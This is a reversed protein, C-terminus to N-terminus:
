GLAPLVARWVRELDTLEMCDTRQGAYEFGLHLFGCGQVEPELNQARAGLAGWRLTPVPGNLAVVRAGVAAALHMVGTNVSVVVASGRLAAATQGLTTRGALVVCGEGIAEALRRSREVDAGAGTLAVRLGRGRLRRALEVWREAPWEKREGMFGGSWAHLVAYPPGPEVPNAEEVRLRPLSRSAIGLTGALRRYNWIEHCGRAHPVARDFAFHRPQGPTAFGACWAGSLAALMANIRAWPEFDVVVDPHFARLRRLSGLPDGIPLVESPLGGLYTAMAANSPGLFVRIERDPHAGRLDALVPSLLLTDGIAATKLIALRRWGVPFRRRRRAAALALLAFTGLYRDLAKLTRGARGHRPGRAPTL